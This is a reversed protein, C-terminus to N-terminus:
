AFYRSAQLAETGSRARRALLVEFSERADHWVAQRSWLTTLRNRNERQREDDLADSFEAVLQETAFVHFGHRRLNAFLPNRADLFVKAGLYLMIVVNGVAQQRLHNMVVISCSAVTAVYQEIPMFDRLPQFAAGFRAEGQAEIIGQYAANGYSLPVIVRRGGLELGRLLEFAELHNNTMTASNGILVNPGNVSRGEFGRIFDDELTGYKWALSRARFAPLAQQVLAFDEAIVPSFYDVRQLLEVRSGSKDFRRQWRARLRALWPEPPSRPRAARTLPMLLETQTLDYYDFGWGLWWVTMRQPLNRLLALKREELSHLVVVSHGECLREIERRSGLMALARREVPAIKIFRDKAADTFMVFRHRGPAAAECIRHAADIFKEDDVIHLFEQASM